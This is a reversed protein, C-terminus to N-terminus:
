LIDISVIKLCVYVVRSFDNKWKFCGMRLHMCENQVRQEM